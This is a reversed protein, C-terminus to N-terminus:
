EDGPGPSWGPRSLDPEGSWPVAGSLQKPRSVVPLPQGLGTQERRGEPVRGATSRPPVPVGFSEDECWGMAMGAHKLAQSVCSRGVANGPWAM